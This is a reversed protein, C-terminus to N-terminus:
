RPIPARFTSTHNILVSFVPLLMLNHPLGYQRNVQNVQKDGKGGCTGVRNWKSLM